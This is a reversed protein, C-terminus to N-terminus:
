TTGHGLGLPCLKDSLLQMRLPLSFSGDCDLSPMIDLENILTAPCVCVHLLHMYEYADAFVCM